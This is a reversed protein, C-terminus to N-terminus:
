FLQEAGGRIKGWGFGHDKRGGNIWGLGVEKLDGANRVSLGQQTWRTSGTNGM